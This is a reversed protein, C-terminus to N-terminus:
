YAQEMSNEAKCLQGNILKNIRKRELGLQVEQRYFIVSTESM